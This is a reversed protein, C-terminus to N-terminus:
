NETRREAESSREMAPRATMPNFLYLLNRVLFSGVGLCATRIVVKISDGAIM